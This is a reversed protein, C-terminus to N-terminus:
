SPAPPSKPKKRRKRTSVHDTEARHTQLDFGPRRRTAEDPFLSDTQQLIADIVEIQPEIEAARGPDQNLEALLRQREPELDAARRRMTEWLRREEPNTPGNTRVELTRPVLQVDDPHVIFRPEPLGYKEAARIRARADDLYELTERFFIQRGELTRNQAAQVWSFLRERARQNGKLGDSIMSRMTAQLVTLMVPQGNEIVRLPRMAEAMVVDAAFNDAVPDMPPPAKKPRGRPNGSRGKQFRSNEPPKGYGVEYSTPKRGGVPRDGKTV